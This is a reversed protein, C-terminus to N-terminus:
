SFKLCAKGQFPEDGRRGRFAGKRGEWFFPLWHASAERPSTLAEVSPGRCESMGNGFTGEWKAREQEWGGM